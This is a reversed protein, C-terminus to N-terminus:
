RLSDVSTLVIWESTFFAHNNLRKGVVKEFSVNEKRTLHILQVNEASVKGKKFKKILSKM